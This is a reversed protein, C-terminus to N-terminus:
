AWTVAALATVTPTVGAFAICRLQKIHMRRALENGRAPHCRAEGLGQLGTLAGHCRMRLAMSINPIHSRML